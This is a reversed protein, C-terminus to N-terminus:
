IQLLFNFGTKANRILSFNSIFSFFFSLTGRPDVKGAIIAWVFLIYFPLLTIPTIVSSLSAVFSIGLLNLVIAVLLVMLPIARTFFFSNYEANHYESGFETIYNAFVVIM